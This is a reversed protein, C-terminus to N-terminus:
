ESSAPAIRAKVGIASEIFPRNFAAWLLVPILTPFILSGIQYCLAIAELRWGFLGAQASVEPGFKVGVQVLLDFAIGWAQFPLLAFVGIVIKWWKARAGLMLALMFAMGYTYILPNVEPLLLGTQGPTPHVKISTVFVLDVGSRELETVIGSQFQDIFIRALSGAIAAHQTASYYWAALCPPLWMFVRLVFGGLVDRRM